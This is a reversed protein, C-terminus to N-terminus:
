EYDGNSLNFSVNVCTDVYNGTDKWYTLHKHLMESDYIVDEEYVLKTKIIPKKLKEMRKLKINYKHTDTTIKTIKFDYINIM